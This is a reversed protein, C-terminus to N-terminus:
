DFNYVSRVTRAQLEMPAGSTVAAPLVDESGDQVRKPVPTFTRPIVTLGGIFVIFRSAAFQM